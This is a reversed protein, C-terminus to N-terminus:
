SRGRGSSRASRPVPGRPSTRSRRRRGALAASRRARGRARAAFAAPVWVVSAVVAGLSLLTGAAFLAFEAGGSPNAPLWHHDAYITVALGGMLGVISMVWQVVEAFSGEGLATTLMSDGYATNRARADDSDERLEDAAEESRKRHKRAARKIEDTGSM